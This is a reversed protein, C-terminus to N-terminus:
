GTMSKDMGTGEPRPTNLTTTSSDSETLMLLKEVSGTSIRPLRALCTEM